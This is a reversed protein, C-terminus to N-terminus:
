GKKRIKVKPNYGPKEAPLQVDMTTSGPWSDKEAVNQYWYVGTNQNRDYEGQLRIVGHGYWYGDMDRGFWQLGRWSGVAVVKGTGTYVVRGNGEYEKKIHGTISLDGEMRSVLVTGTFTFEVRGAGNIIKFSGIKTGFHLIDMSGDDKVGEKQASTAPQSWALACFTLLCLSFFVRIMISGPTCVRNYEGIVNTMPEYSVNTLRGLNRPFSSM